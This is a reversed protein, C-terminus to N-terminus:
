IKISVKIFKKKLKKSSSTNYVYTNKNNSKIKKNDIEISKINKNQVTISNEKTDISQVIEIPKIITARTNIDISAGKSNAFTDFSLILLMLSSLLVFKNFFM